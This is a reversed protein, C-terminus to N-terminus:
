RRTPPILNFEFTPIQQSGRESTEKANTPPTRMDESTRGVGPASEIDLGRIMRDLMGPWSSASSESIARDRIMRLGQPSGWFLAEQQAKVLNAATVAQQTKLLSTQARMLEPNGGPSGTAQNAKVQLGANTAGVGGGAALIPNIGARELGIMRYRPGRKLSKKWQNYSDGLQAKSIGYGISQGISQNGLQAFAGAAM